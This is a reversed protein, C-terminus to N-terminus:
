AEKHGADEKESLSDKQATVSAKEAEKKKSIRQILRAALMWLLFFAAVASIWILALRAM